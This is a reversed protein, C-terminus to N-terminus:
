EPVHDAVAAYMTTWLAAAAIGDFFRVLLVYGLTALTFPPHAWTLAVAALASGFPAVILVIRRGVRDSVVGMPGKFLGEGLLFFSIILGLSTTADLRKEVFVPLALVNIIAYGAEGFVAVLALGIVARQEPGIRKLMTAHM